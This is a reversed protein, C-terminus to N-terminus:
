NRRRKTGHLQHHDERSPSPRTADQNRPKKPIINYYESDHRLPPPGETLDLDKQNLKMVDHYRQNDDFNLCAVPSSHPPHYRVPTHKNTNYVLLTSVVALYAQWVTPFSHGTRLFPFSQADAFVSTCYKFILNPLERKISYSDEHPALYKVLNDLTFVSRARHLKANPSFKNVKFPLFDDETAASSWITILPNLIEQINDITLSETNLLEKVTDYQHLQRYMDYVVTNTKRIRHSKTILLSSMMNYNSILSTLQKQLTHNTLRLDAIVKQDQSSSPKITLKPVPKTAKLVSLPDPSSSQATTATPESM